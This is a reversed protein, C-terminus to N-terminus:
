STRVWGDAVLAEPDAEADLLVDGRAEVRVDDVVVGRGLYLADTEYRWRVLLEQGGPLRGTVDWWTRHGSAALVGDRAPVVVGRATDRARLPVPRWTAGGDASSEVVLPDSGEVDVLAAFSLEGGRAPVDVAARLVQTAGDVPQTSWADPGVRPPVRLAQALGRALARRPPNVSGGTRTPHVRNTLLLAFSGSAHDLVFSTGTYGTHGATRPGSLGDMYWRQDLEFGLGHADGPFETNEDTVLARVSRESLVRVPGDDGVHVGGALLTQALVAMDDVTSFVGAHGAVGDLSWANEDHVEGRVVGRPPVVQLETAAAGEVPADPTAYGTAEMGLPATLGERVVVDLREGTVREVLAGLAIMSLDSYVYATGPETQLPQQLAGLVRSERDPYLSWLPVFPAFGATHTLLHRVTVDSKAAGGAAFEPLYRVVPADLDVRGAEVQQMVAVSTFLKSVSAMDFVTDTTMPVQQDAPLEVAATAGPEGAYQVALGSAERAVVVGRHGVLAVSGPYLRQDAPGEASRAAVADLAARLPAPDLGVEAPTGDRLATPPSFGPLPVDFRGSPADALATPASPAAPAGTAAGGGLVLAAAAGAAVLGARRM